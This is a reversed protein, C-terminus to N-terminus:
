VIERSQVRGVAKDRGAPVSWYMFIKGFKRREPNV